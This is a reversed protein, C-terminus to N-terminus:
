KEQLLKGLLRKLDTGQFPSFGVSVDRVFGAADIVVTHPMGKVDYMSGVRKKEDLAVTLDVLDFHDIFEKIESVTEGQNVAILVLESEEFESVTELLMPLGRICPGCWTAWFDLVVIKGRQTLLDFETGDILPTTFTPAIKGELFQFEKKPIRLPPPNLGKLNQALLAEISSSNMEMSIVFKENLCETKMNGLLNVFPRATPDQAIVLQAMGVSGQWLSVMASARQTDACLVITKILISDDRFSVSCALERVGDVTDLFPNVQSAGGPKPLPIEDVPVKLLLTIQRDDPLESSISFNFDSQGAFCFEKMSAPVAAIIVSSDDVIDASVSLNADFLISQNDLGSHNTDTLNISFELRDSTLIPPSLIKRSYHPGFEKKMKENVWGYFKTLNMPKVATLVISFGIEHGISKTNTKNTLWYDLGSMVFEIRSFDEELLDMAEYFENSQNIDEGWEKVWERFDPYKKELWKSIGSEEIALADVGFFLDPQDKEESAFAQIYLFLLILSWISIGRPMHPFSAKFNAIKLVTYM